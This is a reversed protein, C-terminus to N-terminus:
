KTSKSTSVDRSWRCSRWCRGTWRGTWRRREKRNKRM